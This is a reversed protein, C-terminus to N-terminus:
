KVIFGHTKAFTEAEERTGFTGQSVGVGNVVEVINTVEETTEVVKKKAAMFKDKIYLIPTM